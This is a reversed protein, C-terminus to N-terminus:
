RPELDTASGDTRNAAEEHAKTFVDLARAADFVATITATRKSDLDLRANHWEELLPEVERWKDADRAQQQAAEDKKRNERRVTAMMRAHADRNDMMREQRLFCPAPNSVQLLKCDLHLQVM